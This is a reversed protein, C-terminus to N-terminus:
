LEDRDVVLTTLNFPLYKELATVIVRDLLNELLVHNDWSQIWVVVTAGFPWQNM